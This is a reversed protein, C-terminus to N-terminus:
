FRFYIFPNYSSSLVYMASIFFLFFISIGSAWQWASKQRVTEFLQARLIPISAAVAIVLTIIVKPNIYYWITFGVNEPRVMGFMIGIYTLAERLGEARFFVWGIIIILLTITHRVFAYICSKPEKETKNLKFARELILFFGHWLGWAIFSWGAGHWLGTLCFVILLNVYVNGTRNGGLPIYVYDRFWTSLSIHWRRWFETISKSIYPYNFNELFDFGFMKGLGIAMDSYGSFDFFIQFTYCIIGMWATVTTNEIAPHAFVQDAVYGLTNAILVKKSLGIIFRKVGGVFKELSEARKKIQWEIDKYRIIPGAVLQPFLAVYMGFSLINKQAKADGRYIDITYSMTQFTYFSIGIPLALNLSVPPLFSLFPILRLNYLIFDAYKFFGLILLNTVVSVIVFYKAVKNNGKEKFRSVCYGFIYDM